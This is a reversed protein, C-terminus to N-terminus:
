LSLTKSLHIYLQTAELSEHGLMLAITEMEMGAMYLHTGLTHRLDHISIQKQSGHRDKVKQWLTLIRKPLTDSAVPNGRESIFLEQHPRHERLYYDRHNFVYDEVQKQVQPSMMVYRAKKNKAERVHIKGRNFDIDSLLVRLGESKRMGCGYYIAIMCRDRSGLPTQGTVSYLWKLEDHSLVEPDKPDENKKQRIQIPSTKIGDAGLYKWFRRIAGKHKNVTSTSLTGGRRQNIREQELYIIYGDIQSQGIEKMSRIGRDDMYSLLEKAYNTSEDILKENRDEKMLENSFDSVLQIYEKNNLETTTM